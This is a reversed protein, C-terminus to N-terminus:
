THIVVLRREHAEQYLQAEGSRMGLSQAVDHRMAKSIFKDALTKTSLLRRSLACHLGAIGSKLPSAIKKRNHQSKINGIIINKVNAYSLFVFIHVWCCFRCVIIFLHELVLRKFHNFM